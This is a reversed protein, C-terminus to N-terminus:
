VTSYLPILLRRQDDPLRSAEHHVDKVAHNSHMMSVVKGECAAAAAAAACQRTTGAVACVLSHCHTREEMHSVTMLNKLAQTHILSSDIHRGLACHEKWDSGCTDSM